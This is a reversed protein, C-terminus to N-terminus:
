CAWQHFVVKKFCAWVSHAKDCFNNNWIISWIDFICVCWMFRNDFDSIYNRHLKLAHHDCSHKKFCISCINNHSNHFIENSKIKWICSLVSVFQSLRILKNLWIMCIYLLRLLTLLVLYSCEFFNEEFAKLDIMLQRLQLMFHLM